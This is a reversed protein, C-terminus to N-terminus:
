FLTPQMVVAAPATPAEAARFSRRSPALGHKAVLPTVRDHLM